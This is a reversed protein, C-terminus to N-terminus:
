FPQFLSDGLKRMLLPNQQSKIVTLVVMQQYFLHYILWSGVRRILTGPTHATKFFIGPSLSGMCSRILSSKTSKTIATPNIAIAM